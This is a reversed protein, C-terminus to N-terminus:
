PSPSAEWGRTCARSNLALLVLNQIHYQVSNELFAFATKQLLSLKSQTQERSKLSLHPLSRSHAIDVFVLHGAAAPGPQQYVNQVLYFVFGAMEDETM